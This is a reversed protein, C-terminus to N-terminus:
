KFSFSIQLVILLQLLPSFGTGVAFPAIVQTIKDYLQEESYNRANGKELAMAVADMGSRLSRLEECVFEIAKNKSKKSEVQVKSPLACPSEENTLITPADESSSAVERSWQRQREKPGVTNSGTTTDKGFLLDLKYFNPVRKYRFTKADPTAEYEENINDQPNSLDRWPRFIADQEEIDDELQSSEVAPRKLNRRMSSEDSASRKMSAGTPVKPRNARPLATNRPKDLAM